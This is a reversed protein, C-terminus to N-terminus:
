LYFHYIRRINDLSFEHKIIEKYYGIIDNYKYWHNLQNILNANFNKFYYKNESGNKSADGSNNNSDKKNKNKKMFPVTLNIKPRFTCEKLQKIELEEKIKQNEAIRKKDLLLIRDIYEMNTKKTQSNSTYTDNQTLM